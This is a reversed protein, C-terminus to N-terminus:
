KRITQAVLEIERTGAGQSHSASRKRSTKVFIGLDPSSWYTDANGLTDSYRIRYVKFTGAPVTVDEYAEVKWTAEFDVARGTVRNDVRHRSVSTKGVEIPFGLGFPPDWTVAVADNPALAAIFRGTVPDVLTTGTQSQFAIVPRGQWVREGRTYTIRSTGSGYSGTNVESDTSTAGVPPPKYTEMKPALMACGSALMLTAVGAAAVWRWIVQKSTM